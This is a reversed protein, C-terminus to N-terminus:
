CEVLCVLSATFVILFRIPCLIEFTWSRANVTLAMRYNAPHRDDTDPGLQCDIMSM